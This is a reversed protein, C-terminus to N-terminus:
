NAKAFQMPALDVFKYDRVIPRSCAEFLVARTNHMEEGEAPM